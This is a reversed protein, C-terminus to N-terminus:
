PKVAHTRTVKVPTGDERVPTGLHITVKQIAESKYGTKADLNVIWFKLGGGGEATKTVGVNFEVTLEEVPFSVEEGEAALIAELLERRLADITETIGIKDV